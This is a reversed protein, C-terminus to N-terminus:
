VVAEEILYIEMTTAVCIKAHRVLLLGVDNESSQRNHNGKSFSAYIFRFYRKM